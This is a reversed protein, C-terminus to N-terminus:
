HLQRPSRVQFSVHMDMEMIPVKGQAIIGEVIKRSTGYDNGNFNNLELFQDGDRLVDYEEKTVFHYHQGNVEGVRPPRTTHSAKKGLAKSHNDM